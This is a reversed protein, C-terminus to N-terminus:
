SKDLEALGAEIKARDADSVGRSRAVYDEPIEGDNTSIWKEAGTPDVVLWRQLIWSQLGDESGQNVVITAEQILAPWDVQYRAKEIRSMLAVARLSDSWEEGELTALWTDMGDPDRKLWRKAVGWIGRFREESEPQTSLWEMAAKPDRVAWSRAIRATFTGVDVGDKEAIEMWKVAIEPDHRALQTLAGAMLLRRRAEDFPEATRIWELTPEAGDRLIRMRGLARLGAVGAPSNGQEILWEELGPNGSEFWGVVLVDVYETLLEPVLSNMNSIMKSDIAGQPDQRGWVRVVELVVRPHDFRLQSTAYVMAAEPDFRAWWNALLVYELDGGELQASDFTDLLTDLDEKNSRQLIQAVRQVREFVDPHDLIVALPADAPIPEGFRVVDSTAKDLGGDCATLAFLTAFGLAVLQRPNPARLGLLRSRAISHM